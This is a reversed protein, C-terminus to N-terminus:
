KALIEEIIKGDASPLDKGLLRMITPAVDINDIAELRAGKKIGSGSAVFLANMLPEESLYGHYGASMAPTVPVVFNTGTVVGNVGYGIRPRLVFDGMGGQGAPPLGLAEFREGGILEAVGEAKAFLEIVKARDAERTDPNNLYILGSGGEPICQVRTKTLMNLSSIEILGAQRLLVNPQLVNTAVAFGHDSTVIVTTKDRLGAKNVAGVIDGV